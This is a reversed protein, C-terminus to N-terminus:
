HDEGTNQAAWDAVLKKLGENILKLTKGCDPCTFRGSSDLNNKACGICYTKGCGTCTGAPLEDPPMAYLRLAPSLPPDLPVRWSRECSGACAILRTAGEELRRRLEERHEADEGKLELDDLRQLMAGAEEWRRTNCCLWGLSFLSPSYYEDIKLAETFATEARQYEGQKVSVYGILELIAPSPSKEHALALLADAEGYRGLEILCSARNCIFDINGPDLTRAKRYCDDAEEYRKSRYLLNGACNVMIGEPDDNVRGTKLLELGKDPFGSLYYYLARNVKIAPVEGLLSAAKELHEAAEELNNNQLSIQAALNRAWAWTEDVPKAIRKREEAETDLLQLARDLDAKLAPDAANGSLLFRCEALRFHFIGHEGALSAAEELLPLATKRKGQRILLLAQLLMVSPDPPILGAAERRLAEAKEFEKEAQAFNEISFAWKGALVRAKYNKNGLSLFKPVLVSLDEYNDDNLFCNGATIYRSLAEERNGLVEYVNAANKVLLGNGRDQEFAKDYAAAAAEYEGLNWYAHGLLTGLVPDAPGSELTGAAFDRLAAFQEREYLLKAKETLANRGESSEAGLAICADIWTEAEGALGLQLALRAALLLERQTRNGRGEEPSAADRDEWAQRIQILAADLRGMAAFTEALFYRSRPGATTSLRERAAAAQFMRSDVTLAELRARAIFSKETSPPAEYSALAFAISGADISADNLEAAWLGNVTILIYAGSVIIGLNVPGNLVAEGASESVSPLETWGALPFPMGNRVADLRFYGKSSVLVLYYTGHDVMRFMFGAAAYGGLPELTFRSDIVMDRYRKAPADIWALSVTQKLSLVLAGDLLGADYVKEEVNEETLNFGTKSAKTFQPKWFEEGYTGPPATTKKRLLFLLLRNFFRLM